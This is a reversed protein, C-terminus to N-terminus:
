RLANGADVRLECGTVYRSEDSVLYVVAHAVDEPDIRAVPLANAFIAGTEPRAEILAPLSDLHEVMPTNVGTPHVVNVRIGRTAFENAVSKALGVVAHKSAVYPALFPLGKVAGTSGICVVSGGGATLLHPLAASITNWSGTLNTSIVANWTPETLDEFRQQSGISANAVVADLRGLEAVAAGVGAFMAARDRIDAAHWVVRAGRARALRVTEQLDADGAMAYGADAPSRGLDVAILDAGEEALRLCHMRGQGRGAGTVLVVKGAVRGRRTM